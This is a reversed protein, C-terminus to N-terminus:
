IRYLESAQEEQYIAHINVIKSTFHLFDARFMLFRGPLRQLFREGDPTDAHFPAFLLLGAFIFSISLLL